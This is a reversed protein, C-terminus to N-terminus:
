SLSVHKTAADFFMLFLVDSTKTASIHQQSTHCGDRCLRNFISTLEWLAIVSGTVPQHLDSGLSMVKSSYTCTLLTVNQQMQQPIVSNSTTFLLPLALTSCTTGKRYIDLHLCLNQLAKSSSWRRWDKSGWLTQFNRLTEQQSDTQLSTYFNTVRWRGKNRTQTRQAQQLNPESYVHQLLVTVEEGGLATPSDYLSQLIKRSIFSHPFLPTLSQPPLVTATERPGRGLGEWLHLVCM